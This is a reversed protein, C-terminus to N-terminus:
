LVLKQPWPLIVLPVPPVPPGPPGPPVPPVPPVPPFPYKNWTIWIPKIASRHAQYACSAECEDASGETALSGTTNAVRECPNKYYCDGLCWQVSRLTFFEKANLILAASRVQLRPQALRLSSVCIYPRFCIGVTLTHTAISITLRACVSVLLHRSYSVMASCGGQRAQWSCFSLQQCRNRWHIDVMYRSIEMRPWNFYIPLYISLSLCFQWGHNSLSRLSSLSCDNPNLLIPM